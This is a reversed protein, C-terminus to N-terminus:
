SSGRYSANRAFPERQALLTSVSQALTQPDSELHLSKLRAGAGTMLSIRAPAIGLAGAILAIVAKNAKGHQAKARVAVALVDRGDGVDQVGRIAAQRAGPAVRLDLSIGDERARWAPRAPSPAGTM